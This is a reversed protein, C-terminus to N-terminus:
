LFVASVYVPLLLSCSRPHVLQQSDHMESDQLQKSDVSAVCHQVLHWGCSVASARTTENGKVGVKEGSQVSLQVLITNTRTCRHPGQRHQAAAQREKEGLFSGSHKGEALFTWCGVAVDRAGSGM